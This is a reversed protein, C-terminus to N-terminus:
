IAEEHIWGGSDSILLFISFKPLVTILVSPKVLIMLHLDQCSEIRVSNVRLTQVGFIEKALRTGLELHHQGRAYIDITFFRRPFYKKNKLCQQPIKM